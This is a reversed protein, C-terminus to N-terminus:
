VDSSIAHSGSEQGVFNPNISAHCSLFVGHVVLSARGSVTGNHSYGGGLHEPELSSPCGLQVGSATAVMQGDRGDTRRKFGGDM